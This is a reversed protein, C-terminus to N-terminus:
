HVVIQNKRGWKQFKTTKILAGEGGKREREWSGEGCKKKGVRVM